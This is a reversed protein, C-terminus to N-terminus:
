IIFEDSPLYFEDEKSSLRAVISVYVPGERFNSDLVLSCIDTRISPGYLVFNHGVPIADYTWGRSTRSLSVDYVVDQNGIVRAPMWSITDGARSLAAVQEPRQLTAVSQVDTREAVEVVDWCRWGAEAGIKRYHEIRGARASGALEASFYGVSPFIPCRLFNEIKEGVQPYSSIFEAVHGSHYNIYSPPMDLLSPQRVADATRLLGGAPGTLIIGPPYLSPDLLRWEGNLKVEAATHCAAGLLRAEFGEVELLDILFRASNGCRCARFAAVEVPDVLHRQGDMPQVAFHHYFLKQSLTVFSRIKEEPQTKGESAMQAVRKLFVEREVDKACTMASSVAAPNTAYVLEDTDESPYRALDAGFSYHTAAIAQEIHRMALDIPHRRVGPTAAVAPPKHATFEIVYDYGLFTADYHPKLVSPEGSATLQGEAASRAEVFGNRTLLANVDGTDIATPLGRSRGFFFARLSLNSLTRNSFFRELGLKLWWGRGNTCVYLRGGPKLVRRFEALAKDRDLFMFVGYCFLADFSEDEFPIELASGVRATANDLWLDKILAQTTEVRKQHIDIGTVRRNLTALASLWHGHGCGVDLVHEFGVFDLQKLRDRYYGLPWGAVFEGYSEDNNARSIEVIKRWAPDFNSETM